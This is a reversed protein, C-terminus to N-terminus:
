ISPLPEPIVLYFIFVEDGKKLSRLPYSTCELGFSSLSLKGKRLNLTMTSFNPCQNSTKVLWDLVNNSLKSALSYSIKIMFSQFDSFNFTWHVILNHQFTQKM